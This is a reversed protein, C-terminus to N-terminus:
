RPPNGPGPPSLLRLLLSHPRPRCCTTCNPPTSVSVRPHPLSSGGTAPHSRQTASEPRRSSALLPPNPGGGHLLRPHCPLRCPLTSPLPAPTAASASPPEPMSSFIAVSQNCFCKINKKVQGCIALWWGPSTKKQKKDCFPSKKKEVPFYISGAPNKERTFVRDSICYLIYLLIYYLTHTRCSIETVYLKM